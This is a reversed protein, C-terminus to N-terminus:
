PLIMVLIFDKVRFQKILTTWTLSIIQLKQFASFTRLPALEFFFSKRGSTWMDSDSCSCLGCPLCSGPDSRTRSGFLATHQVFQFIQQWNEQKYQILINHRIDTASEYRAAQNPSIAKHNHHCDGRSDSKLSYNAVKAHLQTQDLLIDFASMFSYFKQKCIFSYIKWKRM